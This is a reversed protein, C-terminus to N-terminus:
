FINNNDQVDTKVPGNISANARCESLSQSASGQRASRRASDIRRWWTVKPVLVAGLGM